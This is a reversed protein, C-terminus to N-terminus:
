IKIEGREKKLQIRRMEIDFVKSSICYQKPIENLTMFENIIIIPPNKDGKIFYDYPCVEKWGWHKTILNRINNDKGKIVEEGESIFGELGNPKDKIEFYTFYHEIGDKDKVHTDLMLLHEKNIITM